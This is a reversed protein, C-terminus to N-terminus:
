PSAEEEDDGLLLERVPQGRAQLREALRATHRALLQPPSGPAATLQLRWGKLADGSIRLSALPTLPDELRLTWQAEGDRLGPEQRHLSRVTAALDHPTLELPAAAGEAQSAAARQLPPWAAAGLLLAQLAVAENAPAPVAAGSLSEEFRLKLPRSAAPSADPAVRPAEGHASLPMAKGVLPIM